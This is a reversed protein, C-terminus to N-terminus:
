EVRTTSPDTALISCPQTLLRCLDKARFELENFHRIEGTVPDPVDIGLGNNGGLFGSISSVFGPSRPSIQLFGTNTERGHCANCTNLSFLHRADNNNIGPANWFDIQNLSSGGLFHQGEYIEPVVHQQRLIEAEHENIFDAVISAGNFENAPTQKVTTERLPAVPTDSTPSPQLTFERLEWPFSLAIENTRLQNLASGNPKLPNSGIKTFRDTVSQLQANYTPGFPIGGLAHFLQAWKKQEDCTDARLGYEAIVTFLPAGQPNSADVVGFVFRAEGANLSGYSPNKRLDLRAVISLLRFPAKKMDLVSGGSAQLWPDTVLQRIAPRAAVTHANIVQPAEWHSLWGLVFKSLATKDTTGALGEMLRGFTWAASAKSGNLCPGWTTRTCDEVVSLDRILLERSRDVSCTGQAFVAHSPIATAIVSVLLWPIFQSRPLKRM